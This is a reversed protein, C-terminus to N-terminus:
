IRRQLHDRWAIAKGVPYLVLTYFKKKNGVVDGIIKRLGYRLHVSMRIYHLFSFLLEKYDPIIKEYYRNIDLLFSYRMGAPFLIKKKQLTTLSQSDDEYRYYIRLSDNLHLAKYKFGIENWVTTLLLHHDVETNFLHDRLVDTRNFGWKEGEIRYKHRMEFIDRIWPSEPFPTGVLKGYQDVCNCVVGSLQERQQLDVAEWANLMKELAEPVFEDDGDAVIFFSGRAESIGLNMASPKGRNEDFRFFRVPFSSTKAYQEILKDLGDESGDDIVIWEFDLFTQSELSKIVRQIKNACNYCPTCITFVYDNDKKM